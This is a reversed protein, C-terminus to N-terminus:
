ILDRNTAVERVPTTHITAKRKYGSRYGTMTSVGKWSSPIAAMRHLDSTTLPKFSARLSSREYVDTVNTNHATLGTWINVRSPCCISVTCYHNDFKTGHDTIHKQLLPMYDLSGWNDQDDTLVVVINPRSRAHCVAVVAGLGFITKGFYMTATM